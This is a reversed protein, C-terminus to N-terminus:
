VKAGHILPRSTGLCKILTKERSLNPCLKRGKIKETKKLSKEEKDGECPPPGRHSKM